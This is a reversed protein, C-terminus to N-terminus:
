EGTAIATPSLRFRDGPAQRVRALIQLRTLAAAIRAAPIECAECLSQMSREREGLAALVCQEDETLDVTARPSPTSEAARRRPVARRVATLQELVDELCTVPTAGDRLLQNTGAAQFVDVRGPVVFVERDYEVALRASILAGSRRPAEVVIVGVSLGVVIRNRRPFNGPDPHSNLPTETILAGHDAVRMALPEHDPPYIADMGQGLVAITRGGADLAGQHASGDIGRALGSVITFGAHSLLAAFRHAQERGYHTCRRTGVIAIAARDVDALDGRVYLCIPPDSIRRLAPPYDPDDLCLIRLGLSAAQELELAARKPDRATRIARATEPGIQGVRELAAPSASLIEDISGFCRLLNAM